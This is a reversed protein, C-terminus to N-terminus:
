STNGTCNDLAPTMQQQHANVTTGVCAKKLPRTYKVQLQSPKCHWQDVATDERSIRNCQTRRAKHHSSLTYHSLSCMPVQRILSTLPPVGQRLCTATNCDKIEETVAAHHMQHTHTHTRTHTRAHTREHTRAHTCTCTYTQIHMHKPQNRSKHTTTAM